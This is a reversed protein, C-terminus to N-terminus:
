IHLFQPTTAVTVDYIKFSNVNKTCSIAHNRSFNPFVTLTFHLSCVASQLNTKFHMSPVIHLSCVPYHLSFSLNDCRKIRLINEIYSRQTMILCCVSPMNYFMSLIPNSFMAKIQLVHIQLVHIQLLMIANNSQKSTQKKTQGMKIKIRQQHANTLCCVLRTLLPFFGFNQQIYSEFSACYLM